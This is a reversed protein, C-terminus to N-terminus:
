ASSLWSPPLALPLMPRAWDLLERVAPERDHDSLRGLVTRVQTTVRFSDLDSAHTVAHAAGPLAEDLAQQAILIDALYTLYL